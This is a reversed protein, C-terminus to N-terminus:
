FRWRDYEAHTGVRRVIVSRSPYDVTVHLRFRNHRINFVVDRAGVLSAKPYAAKLDHPTSWDAKSVELRWADLDQKADPHREAFEALRLAGVLRMPGPEHTNGFTSCRWHNTLARELVFPPAWKRAM